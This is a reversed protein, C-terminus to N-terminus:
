SLDGAALKTRGSDRFIGARLPTPPALATLALAVLRDGRPGFKGKLLAIPRSAQRSGIKMLAEVAACVVDVNSAALQKLLSNIAQLSKIAGLTEVLYRKVLPDTEHDLAQLIAWVMTKDAKFRLVKAAELRVFSNSKNGLRALLDNGELKYVQYQTSTVVRLHQVTMKVSGCVKWLFLKARDAPPAVPPAAPKSIPPPVTKVSSSFLPPKATLNAAPKNFTFIQTAPKTPASKLPSTFIPPLTPLPSNLPRPAPAGTAERRLSRYFRSIKKFIEAAAPSPNADPHYKLVARHYATKIENLTARPSLGLIRLVEGADDM